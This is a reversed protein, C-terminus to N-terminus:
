MLNICKWLYYHLIFLYIFLLDIYLYFIDLCYVFNEDRQLNVLACSKRVHPICCFNIHLVRGSRKTNTQLESFIFHKITPNMLPITDSNFSFPLKNIIWAIGCLAVCIFLESDRGLKRLDDGHISLFMFCTSVRQFIFVNIYIDM